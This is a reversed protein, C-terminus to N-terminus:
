LISASGDGTAIGMGGRPDAGTEMRGSEIVVAQNCGMYSTETLEYGRAALARRTELPYTPEIYLKRDQECHVRPAAIAEQIGLGFLQVNLLTQFVASILRPGGSSGIAMWPEGRRLVISPSGGGMRKGPMISDHYGRLVNFHGLFNNYFFGLDGTMVGAGTVSGISHTISILTGGVDGSSIHTTHESVGATPRRLTADPSVQRLRDPSILWDVPVDVFDPDALYPLCEAFATRTIRAISEVYDPGNRDMAKLAARM